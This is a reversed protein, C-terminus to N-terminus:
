DVVSEDGRGGGELLWGAAVIIALWLGFLYLYLVPVGFLLRPLSFLSLLPFGFALLGLLFLAVLRQTAINGNM